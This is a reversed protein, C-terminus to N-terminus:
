KVENVETVTPTPAPITPLVPPVESVTTSSPMSVADMGFPQGYTNATSDGKTAMWVILIIIGLFPIFIILQWWGSKGIDHLRRAGLAVSPILIALSFTYSLFDMDAAAGIMSLGISIIWQILVFMWFAQRTARGNFDAYQNMVPNLFWDFSM